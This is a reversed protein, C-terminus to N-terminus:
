GASLVSRSVAPVDWGLEAQLQRLVWLNGWYPMTLGEGAWAENSAQLRAVFTASEEPSCLQNWAEIQQLVHAMGEVDSMGCLEPVHQEILNQDTNLALSLRQASAAQRKARWWDGLGM